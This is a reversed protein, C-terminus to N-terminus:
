NKKLLQSIWILLICSHFKLNMRLKSFSFQARILIEWLGTVDKHSETKWSVPLSQQLYHKQM